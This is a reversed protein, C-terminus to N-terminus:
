SESLMNIYTIREDHLMRRVWLISAVTWVAAWIFPACWGKVMTLVFEFLLSVALQSVSVSPLLM